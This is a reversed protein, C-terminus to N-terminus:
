DRDPCERGCVPTIRTIAARLHRWDPKNMLFWPRVNHLCTPNALLLPFWSVLRSIKWLCARSSQITWPIPSELRLHTRLWLLPRGRSYSLCVLLWTVSCNFLMVTQVFLLCLELELVSEHWQQQLWPLMANCLFLHLCPWKSLMTRAHGNQDSKM